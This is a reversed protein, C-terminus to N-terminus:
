KKKVLTFGDNTQKPQEKERHSHSSHKVHDMQSVNTSQGRGHYGKHRFHDEKTTDETHNTRDRNYGGRGGFGHGRGQVMKNTNEEHTPKLLRRHVYEPEDHSQKQEIQQIQQPTTKLLRRHTYHEEEQNFSPKIEEQLGSKLLRQHNHEEKYVQNSSTREEHMTQMLRGRGYGRGHTVIFEEERNQVCRGNNKNHSFSKIEETTQEHDSSQHDEIRLFRGGRGRGYGGRGRGGRSCDGNERRDNQKHKDTHLSPNEKRLWPKDLNFSKTQKDYRSHFTINTIEQEKEKEKEEKKTQQDLVFIDKLSTSIVTQKIWCRSEGLIQKIKECELRHKERQEEIKMMEKELKEAEIKEYHLREKEMSIRAEKEEETEHEGFTDEYDFVQECLEFFMEDYVDVCEKPKNDAEIIEFENDECDDVYEEDDDYEVENHLHKM